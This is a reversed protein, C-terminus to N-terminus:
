YSCRSVTEKRHIKRNGQTQEKKKKLKSKKIASTESKQALPKVSGLATPPAGWGRMELGQACEYELGCCTERNKQKLRTMVTQLVTCTGPSHGASWAATRTDWLQAVQSKWESPSEMARTRPNAGTGHPCAVQTWARYSGQMRMM